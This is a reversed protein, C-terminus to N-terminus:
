LDAHSHGGDNLNEILEDAERRVDRDVSPAPGAEPTGLFEARLEKVRAQKHVDGKLEALARRAEAVRGVDVQCDEYRGEVQNADHEAEIMELESLMALKEAKVRGLADYLEQYQAQRHDLEAQKDQLIADARDYSDLQSQLNLEIVETSMGRLGVRQVGKQDLNARLRRIESASRDKGEALAALEDRVADMSIELKVLTETKDFVEQDIEEIQDRVAAVKTEFPVAARANERVTEVAHRAYYFAKGGFLLFMGAAGVGAVLLGKKIIRRLM